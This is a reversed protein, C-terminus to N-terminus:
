VIRAAPFSFPRRILPGEYATQLPYQTRALMLTRYSRQKQWSTSTRVCGHQVAPAALRRPTIMNGNPNSSTTGISHCVKSENPGAIREFKAHLHIRDCVAPHERHGSTGAHAYSKPTTLRHDHSDCMSWQGFAPVLYLCHLLQLSQIWSDCLRRIHQPQPSEYVTTRFLQAASPLKARRDLVLALEDEM